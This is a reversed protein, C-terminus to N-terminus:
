YKEIELQPVWPLGERQLNPFKVIYFGSKQSNELTLKLCKSYKKSFIASLLPPRSEEMKELFVILGEFTWFLIIGIEIQPM